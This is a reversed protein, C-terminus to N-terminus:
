GKPAGSILGNWINNALWAGSETVDAVEKTKRLLFSRDIGALPPLSNPLLSFLSAPCHIVDAIMTDTVCFHGLLNVPLEQLGISYPSDSSCLLVYIICPSSLRCALEPSSSHARPSKTGQVVQDTAMVGGICHERPVGCLVKRRSSM